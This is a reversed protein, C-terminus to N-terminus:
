LADEDPEAEYHDIGIKLGMADARRVTERPLGPPDPSYGLSYCFLDARVGSQLIEIIKERHPELQELIWRIHTDLVPSDVWKQSSM